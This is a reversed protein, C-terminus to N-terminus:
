CGHSSPAPSPAVGLERLYGLLPKLARETRHHTYGAARRATLFREAEHARLDCANIGEATLWRSVHAMLWMQMCASKRTYGQRLLERAFGSAFPALPGLVRTRSPDVM